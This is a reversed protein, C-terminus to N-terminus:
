QDSIPDSRHLTSSVPPAEQTCVSPCFLFIFVLSYILSQPRLLTDTEVTCILTHTHTHPHWRWQRRGFTRRQLHFSQISTEEGRLCQSDRCWTKKGEWQKRKRDRTNGEKRRNRHCKWGVVSANFSIWPFFTCMVPIFFPVICLKLLIGMESVDFRDATQLTQCFCKTEKSIQMFVTSCCETLDVTQNKLVLM